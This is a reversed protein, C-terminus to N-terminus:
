YGLKLGDKRSGPAPVKGGNQYWPASPLPAAPGTAKAPAAASPAPAQQAPSTPAAKAPAVATPATTAAPSLMWPPTEVPKSASSEIVPGEPIAPVVRAPAQPMRPTVVPQMAAQPAAPPVTFKQHEVPAQPTETTAAEKYELLDERHNRISDRIVEQQRKGYNTTIFRNREDVKRKVIDSFDTADKVIHPTIFILLNTKEITRTSQQFLLGLIPIDGLLPVKRKTNRLQDEMLGGLVVTQGDQCTVATKVTRKIRTPVPNNNIIKDEGFNSLEQEIALNVTDGYGIQPKIKMLLGAKEYTPQGAIITNAQINQPGPVPLERRVEIQAEENDLTLLNPTSIVNADGYSSLASLFASFAPITVTKQGGTAPDIVQVGVTRGSILGGLLAPASAGGSLFTGQLAPLAGFSQGFGIVNGGAGGHASIGLQRDKNIRLEMVVAELYVQRRLVDLKSIVREVLTKFDKASATILLANTAEDYGVKVGGELEAIKPAAAAGTGGAAPGAKAGSGSTLNGLTEALTKAKAYKLYYVHLKGEEPLKQDLRGIIERVKEIARKSALVILSNTRDDPIIKSVEEIEEPEGAKPRPKGKEAQEFLNNVMSAIDKANANRIPIIELVQQPGEQDLEKVIKMLRDINSGGDTIILTNTAPYAFLNGDKSILPKIANAMELASINELKILRTVFSDTVPTTDVHTPIPKTAADRLAVVKLIGAPGKVITFGTVELASLFTQYAEERTMPKESIITIKGKVKDDIIFNRGTAKSIQKIIDRIEGDQVNLYVSEEGTASVGAPSEPSQTTAPGTPTPVTPAPSQASPAPVVPGGVPPSSKSPVPPVQTPAAPTAPPPPPPVTAPVQATVAGAALLLMVSIIAVKGFRM